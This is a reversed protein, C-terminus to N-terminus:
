KFASTFYFYINISMNIFRPKFYLVPQSPKSPLQVAPLQLFGVGGGARSVVVRCCEANQAMSNGGHVIGSNKDNDLKEMPVLSKM